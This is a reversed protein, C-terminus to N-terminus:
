GDEKFYEGGIENEAAREWYITSYDALSGMDKGKCLIFVNWTKTPAICFWRMSDIITMVRRM